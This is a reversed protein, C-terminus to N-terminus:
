KEGNQVAKLASNECNVRDLQNYREDNLKTDSAGSMPTPSLDFKEIVIIKRYSEEFKRYQYNQRYNRLLM